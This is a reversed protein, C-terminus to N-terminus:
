PTVFTTIVENFVHADDDDDRGHDRDADQDGHHHRLPSTHCRDYFTGSASFSECAQDRAFSGCDGAFIMGCLTFGPHAPDPAACERNALQGANGAAKDRGRCAFWQLPQNLPGFADGYFAAEELTWNAREGASTALQPHRGRMSIPIVVALANVRAFMCASVWRQGVRDLRSSLWQPALGIEGPLDFEAGNVVGVLTIGLPVACSVVLSLVERGDETALLNQAQPAIMMRRDSLRHGALRELSIRNLELRNGAVRNGAVRNASLVDSSTTSESPEVACAALLSLLVPLCWSCKMMM